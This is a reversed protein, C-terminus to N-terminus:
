DVKFDSLDGGPERSTPGGSAVDVPVPKYIPDDANAIIWIWVSFVVLLGAATLCLDPYQARFVTSLVAAAFSLVMVLVGFATIVRDHSGTAILILQFTASAVVAPYFTTAATFLGDSGAPNGNLVMKVGETWIGLGGLIVIAVLVYVIYSFRKRLGATRRCLERGLYAFEDDDYTTTADPDM